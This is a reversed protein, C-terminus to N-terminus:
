GDSHLRSVGESAVTVTLYKRPTNPVAEARTTAIVQDAVDYVVAYLEPFVGGVTDDLDVFEASTYSLTVEGNADTLAEGLKDDPSFRDRDFLAVRANPIGQSPADAPVVRVTTTFHM